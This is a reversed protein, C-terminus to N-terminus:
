PTVHAVATAILPVEDIADLVDPDDPALSGDVVMEVVEWWECMIRRAMATNAATEDIFVLRDPDLDLQGEFWAERAAKV